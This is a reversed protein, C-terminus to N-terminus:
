APKLHCLVQLRYGLDKYKDIWENLLWSARELNLETARELEGVLQTISNGFDSYDKLNKIKSLDNEL